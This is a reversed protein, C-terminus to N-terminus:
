VTPQLHGLTGLWHGLIFDEDVMNLAEEYWKEVKEKFTMHLCVDHELQSPLNYYYGNCQTQVITNM